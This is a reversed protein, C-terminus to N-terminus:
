ALRRSGTTGLVLNEPILLSLITANVLELEREKIANQAALVGHHGAAGTVM